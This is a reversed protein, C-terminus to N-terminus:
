TTAYITIIALNRDSRIRCIVGINRGDLSPGVIRYRTGRPDLSLKKDIRGRLVANEVDERDLDDARMEDLAHSSLLYQRDIIKQRISQITAM